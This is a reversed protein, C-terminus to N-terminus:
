VTFLIAQGEKHNVEEGGLAANVVMVPFLLFITAATTSEEEEAPRSSPCCSPPLLLFSGTRIDTDLRTPARFYEARVLRISSFLLLKASAFFDM